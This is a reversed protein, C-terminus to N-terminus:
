IVHFNVCVMVYDTLEFNEHFRAFVKSNLLNNWDFLEMANEVAHAEILPQFFMESHDKMFLLLDSDNFKKNPRLKRAAKLASAIKERNERSSPEYMVVCLTKAFIVAIQWSSRRGSQTVQPDFIIIRDCHLFRRRSFIDFFDSTSECARRLDSTSVCISSGSRFWRNHRISTEEISTMGMVMAEYSLSYRTSFDDWLSLDFQKPRTNLQLLKWVIMDTCEEKGSRSDMHRFSAQPCKDSVYADWQQYMLLDSPTNSENQFHSLKSYVQKFEEDEDDFFNM